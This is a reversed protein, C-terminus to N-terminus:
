VDLLIIQPLTLNCLHLNVNLSSHSINGSELDLMNNSPRIQFLQLSFFTVSVCHFQMRCSVAGQSCTYGKILLYLYYLWSHQIPVMGKWPQANTLDNALVGLILPSPLLPWLGWQETEPTLFSSSFRLTFLVYGM